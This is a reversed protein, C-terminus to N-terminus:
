APVAVAQGATVERHQDVQVTLAPEVQAPEDRLRDRQVVDLQRELRHPLAIDDADMRAVILAKAANAVWNSSGVPGGSDIRELLRIRPDRQAWDRLLETSGDTSGDNGIVLEFDAFSQDIISAIAVDLFPMANKVPMVISLRIM